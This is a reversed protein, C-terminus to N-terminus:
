SPEITDGTTPISDSPSEDTSSTEATTETPPPRFRQPVCDRGLEKLAQWDEDPLLNILDTSLEDEQADVYIPFSLRAAPDREAEGLYNDLCAAIQGVTLRRLYVETVTKGEFVVPFSLDFRHHAKAPDAYGSKPVPKPTFPPLPPKPTEAAPAVPAPDSM